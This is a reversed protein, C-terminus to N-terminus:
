TTEKPEEPITLYGNFYAVKQYVVPITESTYSHLPEQKQKWLTETSKGVMIADTEIKVVDALVNELKRWKWDGTHRLILGMAIEIPIVTDFQYGSIVEAWGNQSWYRIVYYKKPVHNNKPKYAIAVILLLFLLSLVYAM